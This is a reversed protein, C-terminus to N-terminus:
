RYQQPESGKERRLFDGLDSINRVVVKERDKAENINFAMRGFGLCEHRQNLVLTYDGREGSGEVRVIGGKFVDRGCIFLWASREDVVIKNAKRKAMMALLLFSPFFISGRMKGLYTGAYYFDRRVFRRVNDTVLFYTNLTKVFLKEDLTLGSNFRRVFNRIPRLSNVREKQTQV